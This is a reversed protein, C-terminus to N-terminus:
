NQKNEANKPVLVVDILVLIDTVPPVPAPQNFPPLIKFHKTDYIFNQTAVM